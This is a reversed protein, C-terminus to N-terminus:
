EIVQVLANTTNYFTGTGDKPFSRLRLVYNGAPLLVSATKKLGDGKLMLGSYQQPRNGHRFPTGEIPIILLSIYGDMGAASLPYFTIQARGPLLPKGDPTAIMLSQPQDQAFDAFLTLEHRDM